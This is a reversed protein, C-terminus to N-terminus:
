ETWTSVTELTQQRESWSVQGAATVQLEQDGLVLVIPADVAAEAVLAALSRISRLAFARAAAPVQRSRSCARLLCLFARTAVMDNHVSAEGTAQPSLGGGAPQQSRLLSDQPVGMRAWPVRVWSGMNRPGPRRISNWFYRLEWFLGADTQCVRECPVGSDAPRLTISRIVRAM